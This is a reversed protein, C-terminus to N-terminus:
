SVGPRVPCIPVSLRGNIPGDLPILKGHRETRLHLFYFLNLLYLTRSVFLDIVSLNDGMIKRHKRHYYKPVSQEEMWVEQPKRVSVCSLDKRILIAWGTQGSEEQVKWPCESTGREVAAFWPM